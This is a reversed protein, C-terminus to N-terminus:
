KEDLDDKVYADVFEIGDESGMETSGVLDDLKLRDGDFFLGVERELQINHAQRFASELHSFRTTPKVVLRLDQYGKCRIQVKISKEPPAKVEQLEFDAEPEFDQSGRAASEREKERQRREFMFIEETVAVVHIQRQAEQDKAKDGMVDIGLELAGERRGLTEADVGLAKCTTVDFLRSGKWTLFIANSIEPSFGQWRCWALRADKLRQSMHRKVILPKTNPIPSSILLHVIPDSDQTELPQSSPTRQAPTGGAEVQIPGSNSPSPDPTSSNSPVQSKLRLRARERAKRALEPFEEDPDEVPLDPTPSLKQPSYFVEYRARPPTPPPPSRVKSEFPVKPVGDEDDDDDDDLNIIASPAAATISRTKPGSSIDEEVARSNGENSGHKAETAKHSNSARRETAFARPSKRDGKKVETGKTEADGGSDSDSEEDEDEDEDTIRRRKGSRDEDGSSQKARENTRAKRELRRKRREEDEKVIDAYALNSRSFFDVTDGSAQPKSWSPKNFLSRKIPTPKPKEESSSPGFMAFTLEFSSFTM